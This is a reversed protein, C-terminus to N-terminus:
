RTKAITHVAPVCLDMCYIVGTAVNPVSANSTQARHISCSKRSTSGAEESKDGDKRMGAM